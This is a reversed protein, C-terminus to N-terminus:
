GTVWVGWEVGHTHLHCFRIGPTYSQGDTWIIMATQQQTVYNANITVALDLACEWDNVRGASNGGMLPGFHSTCRTVYLLARQPSPLHRHTDTSPTTPAWSLSPTASPPTPSCRPASQTGDIPPPHPHIHTNTTTTIHVYTHSHTHHPHLLPPTSPTHTHKYSTCLLYTNISTYICM